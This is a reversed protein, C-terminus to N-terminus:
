GRAVRGLMWDHLLAAIVLNNSELMMMHGNGHIGKDELRIFDVNVGAQVLFNVTCHDYPAHYSAEGTVVLIPIQRLHTLKRAPERQLWGAELGPRDPREQKVFALDAASAVPPDYTLPIATLGYPRADGFGVILNEVPPGSPEVSVLAKVLGPRADAILFGLPGSQSHTLLIAPGIRDLLAAGAKQTLIQTEVDSEISPIQGAYFADFHRDGERGAGPWQTHQAAQPWAQSAACATFRLQAAEVTVARRPGNVTEHWPSRGRAPQDVLYVVYGQELFYDAWGVRGDPTQLFNTATQGGGHVLVLPYPQSPATPVLVEVFMQGHMLRGTGTDVYDGGAYFYGRRGLAAQDVTPPLHKLAPLDTPM